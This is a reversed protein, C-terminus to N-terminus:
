NARGPVHTRNNSMCYCASGSPVARDIPCIYAGAHCFQGSPRPPLNGAYSFGGGAYPSGGGAYSFGGGAYPSGGGAYAPPSNWGWGPSAWGPSVWGAAAWGPSAWGPWGWGWGPWGWGWAPGFGFGFGRRFRVAGCNFCGHFGGRFGGFGGHFGGHFGGRGGGRQAFASTVGSALCTMVLAAVVLGRVVRAKPVSMAGESLKSPRAVQGRPSAIDDVGRSRQDPIEWIAM